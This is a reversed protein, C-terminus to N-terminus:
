MSALHARARDSWEGVPDLALYRELAARAQTAGGVKALMLGLNYHADAFSPCRSCVQRLEAIALETEGLDEFLNGLNFRAEPQEPELELAADYHARAEVLAGRAYLANGLNTHASALNADLDLARRYLAEARDRDGNDDAACGQMFADYATAALTHDAARASETAEDVPPATGRAVPLELVDAVRTSLTSVAFDMLVQGSEPSFPAGDEDVVVVRDGDSVVRGCALPQEADPLVARLADLNKRVRQLSMGGDLLEKAVRVAILDRFTYFSRGRRRQSPGVFGTQAWYRLRAEQLEFIRAVDRYSYLDSMESMESTESTESM